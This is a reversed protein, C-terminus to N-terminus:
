VTRTSFRCTIVCYDYDLCVYEGVNLSHEGNFTFSQYVTGMPDISFENIEGFEGELLLDGNRYVSMEYDYFNSVVKDKNLNVFYGYVTASDEAVSITTPIFHILDGTSPEEAFAACPLLTLACLLVAILCRRIM